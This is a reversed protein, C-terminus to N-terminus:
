SPDKAALAAAVARVLDVQEYNLIWTGSYTRRLLGLRELDDCDTRGMANLPRCDKGTVAFDLWMQHRPRLKSTIEEVLAPMNALYELTRADIEEDSDVMDQSTADPTINRLRYNGNCHRTNRVVVDPQVAMDDVRTCRIVYDITDGPMRTSDPDPVEIGPMAVRPGWAVMNPGIGVQRHVTIALPIGNLVVTPHWVGAPDRMWAVEWREDPPLGHSRTGEDEM